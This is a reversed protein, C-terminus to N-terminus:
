VISSCCRSSKPEGGGADPPWYGAPWDLAQYHGDTNTSFDLIDRQTIRIHEVLQWPSHPAANPTVGRAAAPLDAM